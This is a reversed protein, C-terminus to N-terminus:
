KFLKSNKFLETFDVKPFDIALKCEMDDIIQITASNDKVTNIIYFYSGIILDYGTFLNVNFYREEYICEDRDILCELLVTDDFHELLRAPIVETM